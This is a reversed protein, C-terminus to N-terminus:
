PSAEIIRLAFMCASGEGGETSYFAKQDCNPGGVARYAGVLEHVTRGPDAVGIVLPLKPFGLEAYKAKAYKHLVDLENGDRPISRDWTTKDDWWGVEITEETVHFKLDFAYLPGYGPDGVQGIRPPSITMGGTISRDSPRGGVAIAYDYHSSRNATYILSVLDGIRMQPHLYLNAKGDWQEGRQEAANKLADGRQRLRTTLGEIEHNHVEHEVIQGDKVKAVLEGDLYVGSPQLALANGEWLFEPVAGTVPVEWNGPLTAQVARTQEDIVKQEFPADLGLDSKPKSADSGKGCGLGVAVAVLAFSRAPGFRRNM